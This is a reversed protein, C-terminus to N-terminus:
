EVLMGYPLNQVRVLWAKDRSVNGYYYPNGHVLALIETDTTIAAQMLSRYSAQWQARTPNAPFARLLVYFRQQSAYAQAVTSCMPTVPMTQPMAIREKGRWWSSGVGLLYPKLGYDATAAIPNTSGQCDAPSAKAVEVIITAAIIGILIALNLKWIM